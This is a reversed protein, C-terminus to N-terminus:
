VIKVMRLIMGRRVPWFSLEFCHLVVDFHDMWARKPLVLVLLEFRSNSSHQTETGHHTTDFRSDHGRLTTDIDGVCM